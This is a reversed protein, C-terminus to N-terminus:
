CVSCASCPGVVSPRWPLHFHLFSRSSSRSSPSSPKCPRPIHFDFELELNFPLEGRPLHLLESLTPFRPAVVLAGVGLIGLALRPEVTDDVHVFINNGFEIGYEM